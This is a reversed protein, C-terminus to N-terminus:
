CGSLVPVSIAAATTADLAQSYTFSCDEPQGADARMFVTRGGETRTRYLRAPMEAPSLGFTQDPTAAPYGHLTAVLGRETCVTGTPRNDARGGGAKCPQADPVGQRTQTAIHVLMTRTTVAGHLYRLDGVRAARQLEAMRPLMVAALIAMISLAVSLEILTIGNM